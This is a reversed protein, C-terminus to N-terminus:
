TAGVNTFDTEKFGLDFAPSNKNLRYDDNDPDIFLPDSVVSNLGHGLTKWTNYTNDGYGFSFQPNSDGGFYIINYDSSKVNYRPNARLVVQGDVPTKQYLVNRYILNQNETTTPNTKNHQIFILHQETNTSINDHLYNNKGDHVFLGGGANYVLNGYVECNSTKNDLYIARIYRNNNQWIEDEGVWLGKIDHVKNYRIKIKRETFNTADRGCWTYIGGGDSSNLMCNYIHNYEIICETNNIAGVAIGIRPM